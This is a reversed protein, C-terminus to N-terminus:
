YRELWPHINCFWESAKFTMMTTSIVVDSMQSKALYSITGKDNRVMYTKATEGVPASCKVSLDRM